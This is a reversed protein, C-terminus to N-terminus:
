SFFTYLYVLNILNLRTNAKQTPRSGELPMTRTIMHQAGVRERGGGM